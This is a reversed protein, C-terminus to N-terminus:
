KWEVKEYVNKHKKGIENWSRKQKLEKVYSLIFNQADKDEFFDTIKESLDRPTKKFLLSQDIIGQYSDSTLFPKEYSIALAMPGSSSMVTVYPFVIVDAACFYLSIEEEPVFGTFQINDFNSSKDKLQSLYEKYSQDHKLRPHKGGAIVLFLNQNVLYKVSDVLLDLGKYHSLYGFYLIIDQQPLDLQNKAKSKEILQVKHEVGHHIVHIKQKEKCGYEHILIKKFPKEHVIISESFVYIFKLLSILGYKFLFPSGKVGLISLFSSDIKKCPVIQHITIVIPIKLFRLLCLVLPFFLAYPFRGYLFVEYQLHLVDINKRNKLINLFIQIPYKLTGEDWCYRVSINNSDSKSDIPKNKNSFIFINDVSEKLSDVLNKTYSGVGGLKAHKKKPPPYISIIGINM